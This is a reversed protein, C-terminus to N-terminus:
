CFKKIFEIYASKQAEHSYLYNRFMRMSNGRNDWVHVRFGCFNGVHTSAKVKITIKHGEINFTQRWGKRRKKETEYDIKEM